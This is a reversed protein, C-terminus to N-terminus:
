MPVKQIRVLGKLLHWCCFVNLPEKVRFPGAVMHRTVSQALYFLSLGILDLNSSGPGHFLYRTHHTMRSYLGGTEPVRGSLHLAQQGTLFLLPRARSLIQWGRCGLCGPVPFHSSNQSALVPSRVAGQHSKDWGRITHLLTLVSCVPPPWCPPAAAPSRVFICWFTCSTM